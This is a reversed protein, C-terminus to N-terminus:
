GRRDQVDQSCLHCCASEAVAPRSAKWYWPGWTVWMFGLQVSVWAELWMLGVVLEYLTTCGLLEMSSPPFLFLFPIPSTPIQTLSMASVLQLTESQLNWIVKWKLPLGWWSSCCRVRLHQMFFYNILKATWPDQMGSPSHFLLCPSDCCAPLPALSGLTDTEVWLGEHCLM